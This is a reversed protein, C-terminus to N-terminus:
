FLRIIWREETCLRFSLWQFHTKWGRRHTLEPFIYFLYNLTPFCNVLLCGQYGGWIVAKMKQVIHLHKKKELYVTVIITENEVIGTSFLVSIFCCTDIPSNIRHSSPLEQNLSLELLCHSPFMAFKFVIQLTNWLCM